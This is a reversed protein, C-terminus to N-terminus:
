IGWFRPHPSDAPKRIYLLPPYGLPYEPREGGLAALSTFAGGGVTERGYAPMGVFPM